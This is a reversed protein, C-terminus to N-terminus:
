FSLGGTMGGLMRSSEEDALKMAENVAAVVTDELMEVDEPDVAEPDIKLSLLEKKGSVVAEVAGGGAKASFTKAGLEEAQKAMQEQMKQAQKLLNNMNGPMGGGFGGHKAM